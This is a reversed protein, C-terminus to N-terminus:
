KTSIPFFLKDDITKKLTFSSEIDGGLKFEVKFIAINIFTKDLLERMEDNSLCKVGLQEGYSPCLEFRLRLYSFEDALYNGGLAVDEDFDHM